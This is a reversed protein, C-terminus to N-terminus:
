QSRLKELHELLHQRRSKSACWAIVLQEFGLLCTLVLHSQSDARANAQFRFGLRSFCEQLGYITKVSPTDCRPDPAMCAGQANLDRLRNRGATALNQWQMQKALEPAHLIRFIGSFTTMRGRVSISSHSANVCRSRRM